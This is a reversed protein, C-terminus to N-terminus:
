TSLDLDQLEQYIAKCEDLDFDDPKSKGYDLFVQNNKVTKLFINGRYDFYNQNLLVGNERIDLLKYVHESLQQFTETFIKNDGIATNLHVISMYPCYFILLRNWQAFAKDVLKDVYENWKDGSHGKVKHYVVPMGVNRMFEKYYQTPVTNTKWEGQGWKQVGILDHFLHLTRCQMSQKIHNIAMIVAALEGGINRTADLEGNFKFNKGYDEFLKEGKDSLIVYAWGAEGTQFSGDTYVTLDM